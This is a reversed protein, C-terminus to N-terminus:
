HSVQTKKDLLHYLGYWFGAAADQFENHEMTDSISSSLGVGLM